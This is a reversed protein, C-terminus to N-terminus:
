RRAVRVPPRWDSAGKTEMWNAWVSAGTSDLCGRPAARSSSNSRDIRAVVGDSTRRARPLRKIADRRRTVTRRARERSARARMTRAVDRPAAARAVRARAVECSSALSRRARSRASVFSHFRVQALGAKVAFTGRETETSM